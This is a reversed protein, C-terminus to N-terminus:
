DLTDKLSFNSDQLYINKSKIKLIWEAMRKRKTPYNLRKVTVTIISLYPSVIAM